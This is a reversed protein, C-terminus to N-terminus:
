DYAGGGLVTACPSLDGFQLFVNLTIREISSLGM